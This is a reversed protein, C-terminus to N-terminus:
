GNGLMDLYRRFRKPIDLPVDYGITKLAAPIMRFGDKYFREIRREKDPVGAYGGPCVFTWDAGSQNLVVRFYLDLDNEAFGLQKLLILHEMSDDAAGILMADGGHAILVLLPDDDKM